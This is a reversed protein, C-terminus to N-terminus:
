GRLIGWTSPALCFFTELRPIWLQDGRANVGQRKRCGTGRVKKIGGRLMAVPVQNGDRPKKDCGDATAMYMALVCVDIDRGQFYREKQNPKQSCRRFVKRVRYM